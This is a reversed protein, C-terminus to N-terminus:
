KRDRFEGTLRIPEHSFLQESAVMHRLATDLVYITKLHRKFSAVNPWRTDAYKAVYFLSFNYNYNLTTYDCLDDDDNNNEFLDSCSEWSWAAGNSSCRNWRQKSRAKPNSRGYQLGSSELSSLPPTSSIESTCSM